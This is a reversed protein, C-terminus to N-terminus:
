ESSAQVRDEAEIWAPTEVGVGDTAAPVVTSGNFKGLWSDASDRREVRKVSHEKGHCHRRIGDEARKRLVLAAQVDAAADRGPYASVTIFLVFDEHFRPIM